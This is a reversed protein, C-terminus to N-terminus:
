TTSARFSRVSSAALLRALITPFTAISTVFGSPCCFFYIACLIFVRSRTPVTRYSECVIAAECLPQTQDVSWCTRINSSCSQRENKSHRV